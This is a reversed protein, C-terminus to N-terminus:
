QSHALEDIALNVVKAIDELAGCFGDRKHGGCIIGINKALPSAAIKIAKIIGNRFRYRPLSLRAIVFLRHCHSFGLLQPAIAHV